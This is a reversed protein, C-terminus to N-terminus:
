RGAHARPNRLVQGPRAGTPEGDRLVATGNVFVHVVGTAYRHPETFTAHDQVTAPDLVTVDARAGVRLVGRDALGLRSAPLSTMKRVAEEFSLVQEDRVYHALVRAFTGYNRPHPVGEGPAPVGGDSAIMTMPHQMIRRVDEEGMSHFVGQCGGRELLEMALEAANPLTVARGRAALIDALSQGNLSPDFPCSAAVVTAPDGGRERELHEVIADRIRARTAPDRLRALRDARRGELSWSPFLITMGTSSATYPYQDSAVDVGRRRAEDIRALSAASGGWRHKGILKHHTVQAKVGAGEGVAIVEEVSELLRGGEDRVHSIYLGDYPAIERALAVLEDTGAFAGPTYELGSSLGFAGAAMADAVLAKMRDLEAPTPARDVNGMVFARVSGHGVFTGVNVAPPRAELAQLLPAVPVASSGDQGGLVTTVGQRVYNEAEPRRVLASQEVTSGLAHSHIDIFGPVVALGAVDLVTDATARRLDGIAAITDARFAVDAVRGPTGLGDYVTGGALIVDFHGTIPAEGCGTILVLLVSLLWRPSM